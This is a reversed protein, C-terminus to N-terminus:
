HNSDCVRFKFKFGARRGPRTARRQGDGRGPWTGRGGAAQAAVPPLEHSLSVGADGHANCPGDSDRSVPGAAAPPAPRRGAASDRTKAVRRGGHDGRRRAETANASLTEGRGSM